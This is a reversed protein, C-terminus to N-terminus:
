LRGAAALEADRQSFRDLRIGLVELHYDDAGSAQRVLHDALTRPEVIFFPVQPEEVEDVAVGLPQRAHRQLIVHPEAAVLAGLHDHPEDHAARERRARALDVLAIVQGHGGRHRHRKEFSEFFLSLGRKKGSRVSSPHRRLRRPPPSFRPRDRNEPKMFYTKSRSILARAKRRFRKRCLKVTADLRLSKRSRGSSAICPNVSVSFSM